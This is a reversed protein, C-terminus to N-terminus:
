YMSLKVSGFSTRAVGEDVMLTLMEADCGPAIRCRVFIWRIRMALLRFMGFGGVNEYLM